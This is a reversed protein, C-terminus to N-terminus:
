ENLETLLFQPVETTQPGLETPDLGVSLVRVDDEWLGGKGGGERGGERGGELSPTSAPSRARHGRAGHAILTVRHLTVSKIGRRVDRVGYKIWRRM